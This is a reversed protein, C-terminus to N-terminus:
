PNGSSRTSEQPALKELEPEDRIQKLTRVLSIVGGIVYFMSGVIFCWAGIAVMTDNCGLNPLFAVSGMVFLLSGMMYLSTTATLMKNKTTDFSRQSLGNVFAAAAFVLSGLVFLLSGEFEPSFLNFYVGLSMDKLREIQRYQAEEPWYLITGVTFILSGWWYLGNETAELSLAGKEAVAESYTFCSIFLYIISGLFFLFCGTLFVQLNHSFTPLFCISGGVFILGALIDTVEIFIALKFSKSRKPVDPTELCPCLNFSRLREILLHPM